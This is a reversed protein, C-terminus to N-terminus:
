PKGWFILFSKFTPEIDLAKFAKFVAEAGQNDNPQKGTILLKQIIRDAYDFPAGELIQRQVSDTGLNLRAWSRLNADLYRRFMDRKHLTTQKM